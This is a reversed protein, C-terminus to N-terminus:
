LIKFPGRRLRRTMVGADVPKSYIFGQVYICEHDRLHELQERTEVGEAIVNLNLSHALAIITRAIVSNHTETTLNRVFSGDMKLIDLPLDKLYSLSSYGTGFDDLALHIGMAKLEGLIQRGFRINEILLGETIEFELYHPDLGSREIIKRISDLFRTDKLQRPSLNVAMKIPPLGMDIWSKCQNCAAELVWEGIPVILGTEQAIPIFRAPSILGREPHRWRVLAEVGVIEGTYIDVQPQYQLCLEHHDLAARLQRKITIREVSRKNIEPTFFQYNNRGEDKAQYMALDAKKLLDEVEDTDIPFLSVGISVTLFFEKGDCIFPSTFADLIKQAVLEAQDVQKLDEVLITFEDGGLRAVTDTERLCASLRNAVAVLIHDGTEHGLSDNIEKFKDLDIFFVSGPFGTRSARKIAQDLRQRFLNRNPLGTLPCYQAEGAATNKQYTIDRTVGIIKAPQGETNSIIHFRDSLWRIRGNELSVRYEILGISNNDLLQHYNELYRHLDNEHVFASFEEFTRIQHSPDLGILNTLNHSVLTGDRLSHEWSAFDPLSLMLEAQLRSIHLEQNLARINQNRMIVNISKVQKGKSVPHCLVLCSKTLGNAQEFVAAFKGPQGKAAQALCQAAHPQDDSHFYDLIKPSRTIDGLRILQHAVENAELIYGKPNITLCADDITSVGGVIDYPDILCDPADTIPLAMKIRNNIISYITDKNVYGQHNHCPTHLFSKLTNM